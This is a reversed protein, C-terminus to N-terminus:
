VARTVTLNEDAADAGARRPGSARRHPRRPLRHSPGRAGPRRLNRAVPGIRELRRCALERVGGHQRHNAIRLVDAREDNDTVFAIGERREALLEQPRQPPLDTGRELVGVERAPERGARLLELPKRHSHNALMLLLPTPYRELEVVLGRLRERRDLQM